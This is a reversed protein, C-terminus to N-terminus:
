REFRGRLSPIRRAFDETSIQRCGNAIDRLRFYTRWHMWKPKEVLPTVLNPGMGLKRRIKRERRRARDAPTESQSEYVLGHCHRCGLDGADLYLTTVRRSCSWKPCIFWPRTGGLKCPTWELDAPRDDFWVRNEGIILDVSSILRGSGAYLCWTARSGPRKFYGARRLERIDVGLRDEVKRSYWRRGSGYGAM